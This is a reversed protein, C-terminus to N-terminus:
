YKNLAALIKQENFPKMIFEKAGCKKAEERMKEQGMTSLMFVIADPKIKLIEKLATIGDMQPMIIDLITLDPEEKKFVELATEGNEAEVVEYNYALLIKKCQFRVTMSDDVLLIKM